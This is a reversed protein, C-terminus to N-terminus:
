NHLRLVTFLLAISSDCLLVVNLKEFMFEIYRLLARFNGDNDEPEM